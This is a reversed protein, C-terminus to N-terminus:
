INTPFSVSSDANYQLDPPLEEPDLGEYPDKDPEEDAAAEPTAAGAGTGAPAGGAPKAAPQPPNAPPAAPEAAQALAAEAALKAAAARIAAATEQQQPRVPANLFATTAAMAAIGALLIAFLSFLLNKKM